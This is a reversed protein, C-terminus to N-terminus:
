QKEFAGLDPVGSRPKGDLDTLIGANVGADKAPSDNKLRFNFYNRSINISDFRPNQNNLVQSVTVNAPQSQVKWLAHDFVVNFATNGSKLVIVEDNVIGNDGWFICNRFQADLNATVPMNNITIYNSLLLVPDRHDIYQNSYTVVTCHTFQYNGGKTLLLNKGCNSILCNRARLSSNLTVIGADYANDVICENLVLKPNANPSPDVLGIAQYANKIIAYNM